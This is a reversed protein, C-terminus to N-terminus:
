SSERQIFNLGGVRRTAVLETGTQKENKRLSSNLCDALSLPMQVKFNLFGGLIGDFNSKSSILSELTRNSNILKKDSQRALKSNWEVISNCLM